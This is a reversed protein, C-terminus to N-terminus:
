TEGNNKKKADKQQPQVKKIRALKAPDSETEADFPLEAPAAVVGDDALEIKWLHDGDARSAMGVWVIDTEFENLVYCLEVRQLGQYGYLDVDHHDFDIAEPTPYNATALAVNAHKFRFLVSQELIFSATDRHGVLKFDADTETLTALERVAEEWFLGRFTSKRRWRAREPYKEVATRWARHIARYMKGARENEILVQQVFDRLPLPM